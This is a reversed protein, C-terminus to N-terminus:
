RRVIERLRGAGAVIFAAAFGLMLFALVAVLRRYIRDSLFRRGKGVAVSVLSYWGLDALIHGAFFAAVGAAGFRRAQLIAGLGITAWWISWYPNSLSLAIGTWVLRNGRGKGGGERPVTLSPLSRFMGSAMWLLVAGGVFSIGIFVGDKALVPSLGLMLAVLLVSELIAHGAVILPGAVPGRRTSEAITATLVPGPMMAGSFAIAFSATFLTVLSPFGASAM